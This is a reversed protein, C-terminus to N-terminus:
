APVAAPPFLRQLFRPDLIKDSKVQCRKMLRHENPGYDAIARHQTGLNDWILVDGATWEFTARYKPQSQHDFLYGLLQDSEEDSMDDVRVTFGSNCYLFKNGTVPHKMVMPHLVLPKMLRHEVSFAPRSSGMDRARDWYNRVDHTASTGELRKKIDVSLDNYAARTDIFETAGLPRGDRQPVEVAYLVNVYGITSGYSMETHWMRGADPKGIPKGDVIINSLIGVGPVEENEGRTASLPVEGFSQSLSKLELSTLRQEPFRVFGYRGLALIIDALEHDGLPRALDLGRITAGLVNGKPEISLM